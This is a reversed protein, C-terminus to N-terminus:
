TPTTVMPPTRAGCSGTMSPRKRSGSMARLQEVLRAVPVRYMSLSVASEFRETGEEIDALLRDILIVALSARSYAQPSNGLAVEAAASRGLDLAQLLVRRGPRAAPLEEEEEVVHVGELRAILDKRLEESHACERELNTAMDPDAVELALEAYRDLVALADCLDERYEELQKWGPIKSGCRRRNGLRDKRCVTGFGLDDTQVGAVRMAIRKVETVVRCIDTAYKTVAPSTSSRSMSSGSIGSWTTRGCSLRGTPTPVRSSDAGSEEQCSSLPVIRARPGSWVQSGFSMARSAYTRRDPLTVLQDQSSM